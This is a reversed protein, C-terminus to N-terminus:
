RFLICFDVAVFSIAAINGGFAELNTWYAVGMKNNGVLEAVCTWMEHKQRAIPVSPLVLRQVFGTQLRRLRNEKGHTLIKDYKVVAALVSAATPQM